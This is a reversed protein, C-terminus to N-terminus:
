DKSSSPLKAPCVSAQDTRENRAGGYVLWQQMNVDRLLFTYNLEFTLAVFDYEVTPVSQRTPLLHISSTVYVPTHIKISVASPLSGNYLMEFVQKEFLQALPFFSFSFRFEGTSQSFVKPGRKGFKCSIDM